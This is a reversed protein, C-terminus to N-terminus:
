QEVPEAVAISMTDEQQDEDWLNTLLSFVWWLPPDSFLQNRTYSSKIQGLFFIHQQM